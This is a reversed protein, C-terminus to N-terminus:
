YQIKKGLLSYRDAEGENKCLWIHKRVALQLACEFEPCDIVDSDENNLRGIARQLLPNM